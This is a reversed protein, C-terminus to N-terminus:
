TSNHVKLSRLEASLHLRMHRAMWLIALALRFLLLFTKVFVVAADFYMGLLVLILMLQFGAKWVKKIFYIKLFFFIKLFKRIAGFNKKSLLVNFVSCFNNRPFFFNNRFFFVLSKVVYCYMVKTGWLDKISWSLM